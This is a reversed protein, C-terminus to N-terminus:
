PGYQDRTADDLTEGPPVDGGRERNRRGLELRARRPGRHGHPAQDHDLPDGSQAPELPGLAIGRPGHLLSPVDQGILAAREDSEDARLPLPVQGGHDPHLLLRQVGRPRAKRYLLQANRSVPGGSARHALELRMKTRASTMGAPILDM